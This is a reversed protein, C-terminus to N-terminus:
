RGHRGNVLELRGVRGHRVIGDSLRTRRDGFPGGFFGPLVGPRIHVAPCRKRAHESGDQRQDDDIDYGNDQSPGCSM